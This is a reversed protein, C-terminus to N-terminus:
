DRPRREQPSVRRKAKRKKAKKKKPAANLVSAPKQNLDIFSDDDPKPKMM